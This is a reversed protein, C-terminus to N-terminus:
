FFNMYVFLSAHVTALILTTFALQTHRKFSTKIVRSGVLITAVLLLYTVVGLWITITYLEM